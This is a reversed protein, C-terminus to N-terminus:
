QTRCGQRDAGLFRICGYREVVHRTQWNKFVYKDVWRKFGQTAGRKMVLCAVLDKEMDSRSNLYPIRWVRAGTGFTKFFLRTIMYM